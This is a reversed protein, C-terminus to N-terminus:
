MEMGMVFCVRALMHKHEAVTAQAHLVRVLQRDTERTAELKQHGICEAHVRKQDRLSSSVKFRYEFRWSSKTSLGCVFCAARDAATAMEYSQLGTPPM